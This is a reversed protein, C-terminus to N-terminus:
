MYPSQKEVFVLVSIVIINTLLVSGAQAVFRCHQDLTCQRSTGLVSLTQRSFMALEHLSGATNAWSSVEPEHWSGATFNRIVAPKYSSACIHVGDSSTQNHQNLIYCHLPTQIATIQLDSTTNLFWLHSFGCSLFVGWTLISNKFNWFCMIKKIGYNRFM